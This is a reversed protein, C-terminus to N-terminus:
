DLRYPMAFKAVSYNEGQSDHYNSERSSNSCPPCFNRKLQRGILSGRLTPLRLSPCGEFHGFVNCPFPSSQISPPLSTIASPGNCVSIRSLGLTRGRRFAGLCRFCYFYCPSFASDLLCSPHYSTLSPRLTFLRFKFHRSGCPSPLRKKLGTPLANAIQSFILERGPFWSLEIGPKFQFLRAFTGRWTDWCGYGTKRKWSCFSRIGCGTKQWIHQYFQGVSIFSLQLLEWM